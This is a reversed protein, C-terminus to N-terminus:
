NNCNNCFVSSKSARRAEETLLAAVKKLNADDFLYFHHGPFCVSQTVDLYLQWDQLKDRHVIYDDDSYLVTASLDSMKVSGAAISRSYSELAKLDGRLGHLFIDLLSQERKFIEPIGGMVACKDVLTQADMDSRLDVTEATHHPPNVSSIVIHPRNLVRSLSLAKGVEFAVIGGISHGFLLVEQKLLPCLQGCYLRVMAEISELPPQPDMMHGPPNIVVIEIDDPIESILGAFSFGSGGGFPFMVIQKNSTTNRIVQVSLPLDM